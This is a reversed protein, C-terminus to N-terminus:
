YIQQKNLGSVLVIRRFFCHFLLLVYIIIKRNGLLM